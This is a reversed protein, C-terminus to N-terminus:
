SGQVGLRRRLSDLGGFKALYDDHTATKRVYSDLYSEMGPITSGADAYSKIHDVDENHVTDCALPHAGFPVEVVAEVWQAPIYTLNPQSKVIDHDVIREVTVILRKSGRAIIQDVDDSDRLLPWQVNGFRDAQYGHMVTFDPDTRRVAAYIQNTFPCRIETVISSDQKAMDTGLIAKAPMFSVGSCDALFRAVMTSESFDRVEVLNAEVARRFNPALGHWFLGVYVGEYRRLLGAAALLDVSVGTAFTYITLDGIGQRIMERVAALPQRRMINGGLTVRSGKPIRSIAEKLTTLKDKM